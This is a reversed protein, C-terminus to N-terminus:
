KAAMWLGINSFSYGAFAIALATNGKLGLDIACVAYILGTVIILWGSM